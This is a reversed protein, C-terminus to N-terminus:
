RRKAVKRRAGSKTQKALKLTKVKKNSKVGKAVGLRKAPTANRTVKVTSRKSRVVIGIGVIAIVFFAILGTVLYDANSINLGQFFRGTDPTGTPSMPVRDEESVYKVVVSMPIKNIINGYEDKFYVELTYKGSSLKDGNPLTIDDLPVTINGNEDIPVEITGVYNGNEDYVDVKATNANEIETDFRLTVNGDAKIVTFIDDAIKNNNEDYYGVHIDYEGDPLDGIGLDYSGGSGDIQDKDLIVEKVVEGTSPDIVTIVVKDVGDKNTDIPVNVSGNDAADQIVVNNQEGIKQGQENYYETTVTYEGDGYQSFDINTSGDVQDGELVITDVVNGDKDRITIVVKNVASAPVDLDINANGDTTDGGTPQDTYYRVPYNAPAGPVGNFGVTEVKINFNGYGGLEDFNVELAFTGSKFDVFENDVLIKEAVVEGQANLREVTVSIYEVNAYDVTFKYISSTTSADSPISTSSEPTDGVVRVQIVDVISNEIASASDIPLTAAFVTMAAVAGLGFCGLIQKHTKKM